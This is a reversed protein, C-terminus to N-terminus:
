ERRGTGAGSGHRSRYGQSRWDWDLEVSGPVPGLRSRVNRVPQNADNNRKALLPEIEDKLAALVASYAGSSLTTPIQLAVEVPVELIASTTYVMCFRRLGAAGLQTKLTRAINPLGTRLLRFYQHSDVNCCHGPADCCPSRLYQPLPSIVAKPAAGSATLLPELMRVAEGVQRNDALRINGRMHKTGGSGRWAVRGDQDRYIQHDFVALVVIHATASREMNSITCRLNRACIDISSRVM